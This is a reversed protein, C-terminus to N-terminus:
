LAASYGQSEQTEIGDRVMKRLLFYCTYRETCGVGVRVLPVSFISIVSIFGIMERRRAYWM